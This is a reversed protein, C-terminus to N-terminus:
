KINITLSGYARTQDVKVLDKTALVESILDSIKVSSNGFLGHTARHRLNAVYRLLVSFPIRHSFMGLCHHFAAAAVRRSSTTPPVVDDFNLSKQNGPLTQLQMKCYRAYLIDTKLM